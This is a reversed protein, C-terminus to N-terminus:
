KQPYSIFNTFLDRFFGKNQSANPARETECTWFTEFFLQINM